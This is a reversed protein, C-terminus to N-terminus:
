ETVAKYITEGFMWVVAAYLFFDGVSYLRLTKRIRLPFIDCLWVVRTTPTVNTHKPSFREIDLKPVSDPFRVPMRGGNLLTATMNCLGGPIMFLIWYGPTATAWVM